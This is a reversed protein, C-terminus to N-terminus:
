AAVGTKIRTDWALCERKEAYLGLSRSDGNLRRELLQLRAMRAQSPGAGVAERWIDMRENASMHIDLNIEEVTRM